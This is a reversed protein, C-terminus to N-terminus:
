HCTVLHFSLLSITKYLKFCHRLTMTELNKRKSIEEALRFRKRRKSVKMKKSGKQQEKGFRIEMIGKAGERDKAVRAPHIEYFRHKFNM